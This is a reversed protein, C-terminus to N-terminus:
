DPQDSEAGRRRSLVVAAVVGVVVLVLGFKVLRRLGRRVEHVTEVAVEVSALGTQVSSLAFQLEGVDEQASRVMELSSM